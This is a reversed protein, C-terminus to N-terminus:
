FGIQRTLDKLTAASQQLAKKENQDLKVELVHSAGSRDVVTPASLCVDEIGYEGHFLSSVTLISREDRLIAEVIRSVALAIAYYTAGKKLIIDYAANKTEEYLEQKGVGRIDCRKCQDCFEKVDVGAVSTLSWAALESDGHEGMIYTHVNRPDVNVRESILFKLRATDLVTGSGIVRNYPLGSLKCTITTLIDVPNTVILWITNDGSYPKLQGVIDRFIQANRKLLDIRSEGPKQSVGATIIIIDSGKVASYDGATVKVPSLFSMGHNMDMADSEAKERDLDVLVIESALGNIMLTYATTSGVFGAGIISIKGKIM